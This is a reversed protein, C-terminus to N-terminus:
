RDVDHLGLLQEELGRQTVTFDILTTRAQLEPSFSPNPLRTIFYLMFQPDYECMKDAVKINLTRGKKVIEKEMVPVLMPDVDEEVSVVVMALGEMMCFELDEKLRNSTIQTTGWPPLRDREKAM